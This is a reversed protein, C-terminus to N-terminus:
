EYKQLPPHQKVLEGFAERNVQQRYRETTAQYAADLRDAKINELFDNAAAMSEVMDEFGKMTKEAITGFTQVAYFALGGCIVLGLLLVGGIISLVILLTKDSSEREREYSM